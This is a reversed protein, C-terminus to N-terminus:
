MDRMRLYRQVDDKSGLVIVVGLTLGAALILKGLTM